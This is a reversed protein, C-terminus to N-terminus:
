KEGKLSAGHAPCARYFIINVAFAGLDCLFSKKGKRQSAPLPFSVKRALFNSELQMEVHTNLSSAHNPRDKPKSFLHFAFRIEKAAAEAAFSFATSKANEADKAFGRPRPLRATFYSFLLM